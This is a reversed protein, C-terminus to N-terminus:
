DRVVNKMNVISAILLLHNEKLPLVIQVEQSFYPFIQTRMTGNQSVAQHGIMKMQEHIGILLSSCGGGREAMQGVRGFHVHVIKRVAHLHQQTRVGLAHVLLQPPCPRQESLIGFGFLDAALECLFIVPQRCQVVDM